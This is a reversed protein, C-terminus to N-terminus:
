LKLPKGLTSSHFLLKSFPISPTTSAQPLCTSNEDPSPSSRHDSITLLCHFSSSNQSLSLSSSIFFPFHSSDMAPKLLTETQSIVFYDESGYIITNPDRRRTPNFRSLLSINMFHRSKGSAGLNVFSM